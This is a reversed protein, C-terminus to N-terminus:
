DSNAYPERLFDALAKANEICRKERNWDRAFSLVRAPAQSLRGSRSHKFIVAGKRAGVLWHSSDASYLCDALEEIAREWCLGFVHFQDGHWQCLQKLYAFNQERREEDAKIDAPDRDRRKDVRLWPVCGGIGVLPAEDLMEHLMSEDSGWTWVPLLNAIGWDKLLRWRAFSWVPDGIIDPDTVFAFPQTKWLEMYDEFDIIEVGKKFQRYAGSDLATEIEWGQINKLDVPDVLVRQIGAAQLMAVESKSAIGSFYFKM